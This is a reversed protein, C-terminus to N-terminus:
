NATEQFLLYKVTIPPFFWSGSGYAISFVQYTLYVYTDDTSIQSGDFAFSASTQFAAPNAPWPSYYTGDSVFAQVIPAFGLGHPIQLTAFTWSQWDGGLGIPESGGTMTVENSGVVRLLDQSSDFTINTGTATDVNQGPKAIRLKFSGDEQQGFRAVNSIGDNFLLAYTGDVQRGLRIIDQVGPTGLNVRVVADKAVVFPQPGPTTKNTVQGTVASDPRPDTWANHRNPIALEGSAPDQAHLFLSMKFKGRYRYM